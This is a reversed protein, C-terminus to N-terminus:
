SQFDNVEYINQLHYKLKDSEQQHQTSDSIQEKPKYKM